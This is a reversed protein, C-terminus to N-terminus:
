IKGLLLSFTFRDATSKGGDLLHNRIFLFYMNFIIRLIITRDIINISNKGEIAFYGSRQLPLATLENIM